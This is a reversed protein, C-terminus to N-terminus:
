FQFLASLFFFAHENPLVLVFALRLEGQPERAIEPAWLAGQLHYRESCTSISIPSLCPIPFRSLGPFYSSPCVFDIKLILLNFTAFSENDMELIEWNM